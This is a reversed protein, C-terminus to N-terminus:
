REDDLVASAHDLDSLPLQLDVETLNSQLASPGPSLGVVPWQVSQPFRGDPPECAELRGLLRREVEGPLGKTIFSAVRNEPTNATGSMPQFSAVKKVRGDVQLFVAFDSSTSYGCRKVSWVGARELGKLLQELEEASLQGWAVYDGSVRCSSSGVDLLVGAWVADGRGDSQLEFYFDADNYCGGRNSWRLTVRPGVRKQVLAEPEETTQEAHPVPPQWSLFASVFVM